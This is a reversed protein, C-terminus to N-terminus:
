ELERGELGFRMIALLESTWWNKSLDSQTTNGASLPIFQRRRTRQRVDEDYLWDQSQDLPIQM